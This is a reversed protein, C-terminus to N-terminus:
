GDHGALLDILPDRTLQIKIHGFMDDNGAIDAFAADTTCIAVADADLALSFHAWDFPGVGVHRCRQGGVGPATRGAHELMKECLFSLDSLPGRSDLIKLQRQQKMDDVKDVMNTVSGRVNLDISMREVDSGSLYKYSGTVRKRFVDVAEMLALPTTVGQCGSMDVADLVRIVDDYHIDVPGRGVAVLIGSDYYVRPKKNSRLHM